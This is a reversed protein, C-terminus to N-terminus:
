KREVKWGGGEIKLTPALQTPCEQGVSKFKIKDQIEFWDLDFGDSL